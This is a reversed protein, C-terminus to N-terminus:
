FDHRYLGEIEMQRLRRYDAEIQDPDQSCLYLYGPCTAMDITRSVPAGEPLNLVMSDFTILSRVPAWAADPPMKGGRHSILNVCRLHAALHYGRFSQSALPDHHAIARALSDVQNTGTCRSLLEPMQGGGLRAGCEVLVPGRSTLMVETHGAANRIELANLVTLTYEVIQRATPDEWALLNEYDYITRGDVSRKHYRWIEVIQHVGDRSVSNVYYEVGSLFEQVLVTDNSRGYRDISTTIQAHAKNIEEESHCVIVNDGGASSSPKLVVPWQGRQAVWAVIEQVSTSRFCEASALGNDKLAQHMLFKDRRAAPRSMGNGPTGLAASLEDALMVGSEAGAVVLDIGLERLRAATVAPDGEHAIDITFDEPLYSLRWDPSESRVHVFDVGHRRLAAPLHRGAGYADVIACKRVSRRV